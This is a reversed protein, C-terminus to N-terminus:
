NSGGEAAVRKQEALIELKQKVLEDHVRKREKATEEKLRAQDAAAMVWIPKESKSYEELKTM